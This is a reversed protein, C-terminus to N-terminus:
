VDAFRLINRAGNGGVGNEKEIFKGNLKNAKDQESLEYLCNLDELTEQSM